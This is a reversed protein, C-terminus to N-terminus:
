ILDVVAKYSQGALRVAGADLKAPVGV